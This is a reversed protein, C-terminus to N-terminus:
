MQGTICLSLGVKYNVFIISENDNLVLCISISFLHVKAIQKFTAKM